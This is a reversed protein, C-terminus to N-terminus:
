QLPNWCKRKHAYYPRLPSPGQNWWESWYEGDGQSCCVSVCRSGCGMIERRDLRRSSLYRPELWGRMYIISLPTASCRPLQPFVTDCIRTVMLNADSRATMEAFYL